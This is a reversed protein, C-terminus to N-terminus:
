PVGVWGVRATEAHVPARGWERRSGVGGGQKGCVKCGEGGTVTFPVPYYGADTFDAQAPAAAINDLPVATIEAASEYWRLVESGAPCTTCTAVGGMDGSRWDGAACQVPPPSFSPPLASPQDASACDGLARPRCM